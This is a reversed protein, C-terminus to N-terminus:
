IVDDDHSGGIYTCIDTRGSITFVKRTGYAAMVGCGYLIYSFSDPTSLHNPLIDTNGRSTGCYSAGCYPCLEYMYAGVPALRACRLKDSTYWTRGDVVVMEYGADLLQDETIM